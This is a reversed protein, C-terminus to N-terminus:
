FEYKVNLEVTQEAGFWCNTQNYCSYYEKDFVNNVVLNAQAGDLSTSASGLDYGLSLDAVTYSPVKGQTNNADMQMEGVYRVGGGIRAGDLAGSTVYYNSWINASHEPVYIPTTGVLSTDSAKKVEMDLYTYSALVDWNEALYAQGEIEIGQSTVEGLQIKARFTPDNPDAAISDNKTIHFYSATLTNSMDESMYKVGVEFQKGTQPKLSDGNIDTGAAPEFSTAYSAFPSLGNDFEYLAGLRYSFQNHDSTDKGDYTPSSSTKDDHSKFLDYRGGALLVLRDYRMQDQFYFGLQEFGIDHSESYAETVQSRDLLNNNPRYANFTYFAANGAYEKYVSDGELDQYDLGLLLNHELVGMAVWGSLQNDIVYSKYDEDTTYINRTLLGTSATFATDRHYTNEQYLSADTYRANQLFSWNDNFEHHLKYGLMLVDREFSSWNVDGLSVSPSQRELVALPMSSNIGMEPDNQYYLNFNILTRDNVQWDVSPAIVYREEEAGDVQSDQKRAMAVLRYSLNNDGIQGTSDVSAELLNRSGTAANVSTSDEQQPSKAIINVMGGPPMSGYLVSTPGKFIEIQQIASPDIQPHLNWGTLYPLILGDYYNQNNNSFGRISFNDYMTVAAGKQETVVGPAYRLAENVTKVGRQELLENDIVTIGQPTEEPELATKTATNRYVQGLVTITELEASDVTNQADAYLPASFATLLAVAISSHKFQTTTDM